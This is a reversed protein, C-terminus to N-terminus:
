ITIDQSRPSPLGNRTSVFRREFNAKHSLWHCLTDAMYSVSCSASRMSLWGDIIASAWCRLVPLTCVFLGSYIPPKGSVAGLPVRSLRSFKLPHMRFTAIRSSSFSQVSMSSNCFTKSPSHRATDPTQCMEGAVTHEHTFQLYCTNRITYLLPLLFVM